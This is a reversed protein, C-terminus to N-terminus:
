KAGRRWQRFSQPTAAPDKIFPASELARAQIAWIPEGLQVLASGFSDLIRDAWSGDRRVLEKYAEEDGFTAVKWVQKWDEVARVAEPHEIQVNTAVMYFSSRKSHVKAHKFLRVASFQHFQHLVELTRPEEVKYLLVVITGGERLHELGLALQTVALRRPESHERYAARSHTRLVQGDGLVIDFERLGHFQKPIFNALDPHDESIDVAGVDAALMTIDLMRTDIDVHRPLLVQHGGAEVPLSCATVVAGPNYEMAASLFGGPAKWLDLIRPQRKSEEAVNFAGTSKHLEKGINQM